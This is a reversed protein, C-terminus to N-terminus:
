QIRIRGVVVEETAPIKSGEAYGSYYEGSVAVQYTCPFVDITWATANAVGACTLAKCSPGADGAAGGDGQGAGDSDGSAFGGSPVGCAAVTAWSVSVAALGLTQRM